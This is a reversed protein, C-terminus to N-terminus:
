DPSTKAEHFNKPEPNGDYVTSQLAIDKKNSISGTSNTLMATAPIVYQLPQPNYFTQLNRLERLGRQSINNNPIDEEETDSDPDEPIPHVLGQFPDSADTGFNIDEFTLDEDTDPQPVTSIKDQALNYYDGYSKHLFIATRSNILKKTALNLFQSVEGAHNPPYGVFM